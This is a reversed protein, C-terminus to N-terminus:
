DYARLMAGREGDAMTTYLPEGSILLTATVLTGPSGPQGTRPIDLGALLPHERINDPTTGHAIQWLIEGRRMDIASITGYPPKILPLGQVSLALRPPGREPDVPPAEWRPAQFEARAGGSGSGSGGSTRPGTIANGQIYAMDSQGPFPPVLGISVVTGSSAVYLIGTEPDFSGGPWNTG